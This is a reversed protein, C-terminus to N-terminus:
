FLFLAIVSFRDVDVTVPQGNILTFLFLLFNNFLVLLGATTLIASRVPKDTVEFTM